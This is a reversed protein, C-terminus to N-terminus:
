IDTPAGRKARGGMLADELQGMWFGLLDQLEKLTFRRLSRSGVRYEVVGSVLAKSMAELLQDIMLQCVEPSFKWIPRDTMWFMMNDGVAFGGGAGVGTRAISAGRGFSRGFKGFRGLRAM